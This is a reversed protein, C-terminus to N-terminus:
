KLQYVYRVQKRMIEFFFSLISKPALKLAAFNDM